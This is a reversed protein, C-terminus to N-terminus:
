VAEMMSMAQELGPCEHVQWRESHVVEGGPELRTLPGLSELECFEDNLYVQAIAGRDPYDGGPVPDFSKVFLFRDRLYGLMSPCPGSGLKLQPGNLSDITVVNPGWAIRPDDLRTYPWLVLSRNAQTPPAATPGTVPM